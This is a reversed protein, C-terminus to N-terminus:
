SSTCLVHTSLIHTCLTSSSISALDSTSQVGVQTDRDQYIDDGKRGPSSLRTDIGPAFWHGPPLEQSDSCCTVLDTRCQVTDGHPDQGVQTIDVYSHNPLYNGRFTLYPYETQSQVEVLSWLLCLLVCLLTAKMPVMEVHFIDYAPIYLDDCLIYFEIICNTVRKSKQMSSGIRCCPQSFANKVGSRYINESCTCFHCLQAPM